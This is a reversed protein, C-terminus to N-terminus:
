QRMELVESHTYEKGNRILTIDDRELNEYRKVIVDAYREDLEILFAKRKTHEAAILTSGSGGFGDFVYGGKKSSNKIIYELLDIPKMTPHEENKLPKNFEFITTQKRDGYFKHAEGEKWGVLIPEHKFHYNFRGLILSNKVWICTQSFYLKANKLASMFNITERDAYFVYIMAGPKMIENMNKFSKLLFEYFESDSLNDNEIKLKNVGKGSYNINYPPDTLVLDIKKNEILRKVDEEKTVDGVLLKHHGLLWLDGIQSFKKEELLPIDQEELIDETEIKLEELEIAEFGTLDLDGGLESIRELESRLLDEDFGTELTLKNHAIIYQKKELENLHSLQIIPITELGIEKAAKFRGHGEIIMFEEDIAIPDNFGFAIISNKIKEIQQKPHLKSNNKNEIILDIKINEIELCISKM